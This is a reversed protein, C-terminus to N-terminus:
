DFSFRKATEPPEAVRVIYHTARRCMEEMGVVSKEFARPASGTPDIIEGVDSEMYSRASRSATLGGVWDRVSEAPPSDDLEALSLFEPLTMTQRYAQPSMAAIKVVHNRESTLILDAPGVNKATVKRSRHQSTDFGRRKMAAVADPISPIGEPGFGLSRVIAAGDGLQADLMSQLMVMTMVSRTRNHSCVTLIKLPVATNM